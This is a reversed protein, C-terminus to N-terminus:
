LLKKIDDSDPNIYIEDGSSIESDTREMTSNGTIRRYIVNHALLLCNNAVALTYGLSIYGALILFLFVLVSSVQASTTLELPQYMKKLYIIKSGTPGLLEKVATDLGGMALQAYYLANDLIPALSHMLPMFLNSYIILGIKLIALFFILAFVVLVVTTIGYVILRLPQAWTIRMAQVATGFGDEETAAMIVPGFFLAIIFSLAFFVLVMGAFIYPLTALSNLIEGLWPIKGVAAMILAGLVFPIILFLFTLLVGAVSTWRKGAFRFAQKYTYSLNRRLYMYAARSVATNFVLLVFGALILGTFYIIHSLLPMGEPLYPIFLGYQQWLSVPCSGKGSAFFASYSFVLYIIHVAIIGVTAIFIRQPGIAARPAKFLDRIDNYFHNM